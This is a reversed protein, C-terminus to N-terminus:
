EEDDVVVKAHERHVDQFAKAMAKDLAKSVVMSINAKALAAHVSAQAKAIEAQAQALDAAHERMAEGLDIQVAIAARQREAKAISRAVAARQQEAFSWHMEKVGNPGEWRLTVHSPPAPPVQLAPPAPPAPPLAPLAPAPPPAPPEPPAPPVADERLVVIRRQHIKQAKEVPEPQLASASAVPSAVLTPAPSAAPEPKAEAVSPRALAMVATATLGLAAIKLVDAKRVARRSRTPNLIAEVREDLMSAEAMALSVGAYAPRSGAFARALGVLHEAYASAKIGCALVVDDAATEGDRRMARAAVWVLPNPWYLACAILAVLRTLCDHRRVHAAEHLLVAELRARSWNVSSKPLLVIPRLIGWTIPGAEGPTTRIRLQWSLGRFKESSLGHPIHPVSARYLASLAVGGFAAKSLVFIVGMAWLAVLGLVLLSWDFAPGAAPAAMAVPLSAQPAALHWIMHSPLALSALPLALLVAFAGSLILHRQSAPKGQSLLMAIALLLSGGFFCESALLLSNLVIM